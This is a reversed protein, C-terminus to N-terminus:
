IMMEEWNQSLSNMMSTEDEEDEDSSHFSNYSWITNFTTQMKLSFELTNLSEQFNQDKNLVFSLLNLSWDSKIKHSLIAAITREECLSVDNLRYGHTM